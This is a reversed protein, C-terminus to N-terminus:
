HVVLSHNNTWWAFGKGNNQLNGQATGMVFAGKAAGVQILGKRNLGPLLNLGVKVKGGLIALTLVCKKQCIAIDKSQRM